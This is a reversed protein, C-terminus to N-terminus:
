GLGIKKKKCHTLKFKPGDSFFFQFWPPEGFYFTKNQVFIKGKPGLIYTFPSCCKGFCIPYFHPTIPVRQKPM